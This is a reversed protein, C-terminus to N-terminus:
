FIYFIHHVILYGIKDMLQEPCLFGNGQMGREEDAVLLLIQFLAYVGSKYGTYTLEHVTKLCVHSGIRTGPLGNHAHATRVGQVHCHHKDAYLTVVLHQGLSQSKNGGAISDAVDTGVGHKNIHVHIRQSKRGLSHFIPQYLICLNFVTHAIILMGAASYLGAYRHMGEAM